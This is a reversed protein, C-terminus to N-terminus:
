RTKQNPWRAPLLCRFKVAVYSNMAAHSLCSWATCRFSNTLGDTGETM